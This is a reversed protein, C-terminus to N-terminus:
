SVYKYEVTVINENQFNTLAEDWNYDELIDAMKDLIFVTKTIDGTPDGPYVGCMSQLLASDKRFGACSAEVFDPISNQV